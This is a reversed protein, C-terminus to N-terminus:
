KRLSNHKYSVSSWAISCIQLVNSAAINTYEYQNLSDQIFTHYMYM